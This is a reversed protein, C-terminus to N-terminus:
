KRERCPILTTLRMRFPEEACMASRAVIAASRAAAEGKGKGGSSKGEIRDTAARDEEDRDM